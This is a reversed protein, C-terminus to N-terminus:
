SEEKSTKSSLYIYSITPILLLLFSAALIVSLVIIIKPLNGVYATKTETVTKTQTQTQIITQPDAPANNDPPTIVTTNDTNTEADLAQLLALLQEAASKKAALRQQVAKSQGSLDEMMLEIASKDAIEVNASNLTLVYIWRKQFASVEAAIKKEQENNSAIEDCWATLQDLKKEEKSLLAKVTDSLMMDYIMAAESVLTRYTEETKLLAYDATWLVAYDSQFAQAAKSDEQGQKLQAAKKVLASIKDQIAPRILLKARPSLANYESELISIASVDSITIAAVEKSIVAHNRSLFLDAENQAEQQSAQFALDNYKNQAGIYANYLDPYQAKFILVQTGSYANFIVDAASINKLCTDTYEIVLLKRFVALDEERISQAVAPIDKEVAAAHPIDTDNCDYLEVIDLKFKATTNAAFADAKFYFYFLANQVFVNKDNTFWIVSATAKQQDDAFNVIASEHAIGCESADGKVKLLSNDFHLVARIGGINKISDCAVAVRISDDPSLSTCDAYRGTGADYKQIQLYFGVDEAFVTFPNCLSCFAICLIVMGAFCRKLKMM